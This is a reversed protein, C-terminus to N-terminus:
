ISMLIKLQLEWYKRNSNTKSHCQRCLSILNKPKCNNKDYDIHHVCLTKQSQQSAKCCIQCKYNDRKRISDKLSKNFAISYPEFSKGGRWNNNKDLTYIISAHKNKCKNDCYHNIYLKLRSKKIAIHKGCYSCNAYTKKYIQKMFKSACERSCCKNVYSQFEIGCSPCIKNHHNKSFVTYVAKGIEGYGILIAKM